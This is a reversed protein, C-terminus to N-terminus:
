DEFDCFLYDNLVNCLNLLHNYIIESSKTLITQKLYSGFYYGIIDFM